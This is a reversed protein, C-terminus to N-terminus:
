SSKLRKAVPTELEQKDQVPIFHMAVDEVVHTDNRSAFLTPVAEYLRAPCVAGAVSYDFVARTYRDIKVVPLDAQCFIEFNVTSQADGQTPDNSPLVNSTEPSKMSAKSKSGKQPLMVFVNRLALIKEQASQTLFDLKVLLQEFQKNQTVTLHSALLLAGSDNDLLSSFPDCIIEILISAEAPVKRLKSSFVRVFFAFIEGSSKTAISKLFSLWYSGIVNLVDKNNVTGLLLGKTIIELNRSYKAAFILLNFHRKANEDANYEEAEEEETLGISVLTADKNNTAINVKCDKYLTLSDLSVISRITEILPNIVANFEAINSFANKHKDDKKIAAVLVEVSHSYATGDALFLISRNFNLLKHLLLEFRNLSLDYHDRENEVLLMCRTLGKLDAESHANRELLDGFEILSQLKEFHSDSQNHSELMFGFDALEFLFKNVYDLIIAQYMRAESWSKDNAQITLAILNKVFAATIALKSKESKSTKIASMSNILNLIIPELNNVIIALNIM